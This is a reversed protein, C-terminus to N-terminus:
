RCSLPNRAPAPSAGEGALHFMAANRREEHYRRQGDNGDKEAESRLTDHHAAIEDLAQKM